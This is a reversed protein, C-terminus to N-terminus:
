RSSRAAVIKFPAALEVMTPPRCSVPDCAQYGLECTVSVPGAAAEPRVRLERRFEVAGQYTMQNDAGPTPKPYSWEGVAEVADPLELKLTTAVGAGNSGQAAYIHWPPAIKVLISIVL